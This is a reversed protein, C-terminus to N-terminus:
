VPEVFAGDAFIAAEDEADIVKCAFDALTSLADDLITDDETTGKTKAKIANYVALDAEYAVKAM